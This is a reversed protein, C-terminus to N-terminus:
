QRDSVKYGARWLATVIKREDLNEGKIRLTKIPGDGELSITAGTAVAAMRKKCGPCCAHVGKIVIENKPKAPAGGIATGVPEFEMLPKGNLAMDGRMGARDMAQGVEDMDEEDSLKLVVSSGEVDAELGSIGSVKELQAQLSTACNGCCFPLNTIKISAPVPPLRRYTETAGKDDTLTLEDATVKCKLRLKKAPPEPKKPEKPDLSITVSLDTLKLTQGDLLKYGASPQFGEGEIVFVVSGDKAFNLLIKKDAPRQERVTTWDIQPGKPERRTLEWRGRIPVAPPNKPAVDKPTETADAVVQMANTPAADPKACSGLLPVASGLLLWHITRM